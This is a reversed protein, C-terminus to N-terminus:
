NVKLRTGDSLQSWLTNGNFVLSMHYSGSSTPAFSFSKNTTGTYAFSYSTVLQDPALTIDKWIDLTYTGATGGTMSINANVSNGLIIPNPSFNYSTVAFAIPTTTVTTTTTTTVPSSVILRTGDSPQSWLTNGNFVLSMHYSGSSTPAFSFSKNTTGTYAFSYSTVLQDPALTIDKWIDLTYTGATGGTMSINANVSNGLIIPNPSFNYSTVAFAIPTTTVTTMTTTAPINSFINELTEFQFNGSNYNLNMSVRFLGNPRGTTTGWSNLMIWCPNNPDETDYGVCLVAHYGIISSNNNPQWVNAESQYDWFNFFDNTCPFSFWIGENQVLTNEIDSIDAAQSLGPPFVRVEHISHDIPYNPVLGISNAPVSAKNTSWADQYSANTNSWPISKGQNAYFNAFGSIWGGNGAWGSGSGGNYNSDFYQISLRDEISKDVDLTIEM